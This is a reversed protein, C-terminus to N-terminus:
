SRREPGAAADLEPREGGVRCGCGAACGYLGPTRWPLIDIRRCGQTPASAENAIAGGQPHYGGVVIGAAGLLLLLVGYSPAMPVFAVLVAMTGVTGAALWRRGFRDGLYGFIPQSTSSTIAWVASAVGVIGLSLELRQALFPYMMNPLMATFDVAFHGVAVTAVWRRAASFVSIRLGERFYAVAPADPARHYM